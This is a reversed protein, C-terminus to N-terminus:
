EGVQPLEDAAIECPTRAGDDALPEAAVAPPPEPPPPEPPPPVPDPVADPEAPVGEGEAIAVEESPPAELEDDALVDDPAGDDEDEDDPDDDPDEEPDDEPGNGDGEPDGGALDDDLDTTEDPTEGVGGDSSGLLGKILDALQQGLGGVGGFGSGMGGGSGMSGASGPPLGGAGLDGSPPMSPPQAAVPTTGPPAASAEPGSWAAEPGSWPAAGFPASGAAAAPVTHVPTQHTRVASALVPEPTVAAVGDVRPGLVGPVAFVVTPSATAAIAADYAADVAAAAERMAAVWGSAVTLEVFPRVRQDVLESAAAVDGGGTTVTTAAALWEGRQPRQGDDVTQTARVKADVARWLSDRLTATANAAARVAASVVTASQISRWLFERAAAAGRGSWAADLDTMLDVQMGVADEAAAAAALLAGHDADLARLDLGDESGYWERAQAPYTTLDRHHYGLRQAAAVYEEIDAVTPSGEALRGAVDYADAM